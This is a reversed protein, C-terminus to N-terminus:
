LNQTAYLIMKRRIHASYSPRMSHNQDPYVMMDYMKGAKDLRHCMEMTNQFHVNDDATGHIILLRTKESLKGAHQLPSCEDYGAANDQPLSNYTETYISDYFRWSTVPAVAIAMRFLGDGHLACNLAMFGGYSWGYIGIREPDIGPLTSLMRAFSIQDETEKEGLRKYTCKKFDEGRAGTGRGDCCAIVYGHKCLADEWDLGWRNRVQQSGPGSYQTILVPYRKESSFGEPYQIYYNLTDGRETVFEKFQKETAQWIKSLSERRDALTQICRGDSDRVTIVAPSNISSETQIYYKMAPTPTVKVWGDRQSLCRKDKGNLRVSYLARNRPSPESSIYFVRGNAAGCLETVDYKGSTIDNIFGKERDWLQLHAYHAKTEQLVIFRTRDIFTVTSQSPREVYRDNKEHYIIQQRDKKQLVVEFDNQHRNVRYFYLLGDETWGPNFIYQDSCEGTDIQHKTGSPIDYVWLTVVSNKGGAKPYKFSYPHNYLTNDYRMMDFVPVQEEDFRLYAIKDSAPSFCYATTFGYEEEYVWDSTGNIIRNWEGDQTVATSKRSAIDYIYLNNAKCYAITKSDPSFTLDRAAELIKETRNHDTCLYQDATYSHRYINKVSNRDTILVSKRDPSISYGMFKMGTRFLLTSDKTDSYSVAYIDSGKAITFHESDPCARLGGIEATARMARLVQSYNDDAFASIAGALAM